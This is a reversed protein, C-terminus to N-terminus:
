AHPNITVNAFVMCNGLAKEVTIKTKQAAAPTNLALTL